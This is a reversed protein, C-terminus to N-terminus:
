PLHDPHVAVLDHDPPHTLYLRWLRASAAGEFIDPFPAPMPYAVQWGGDDTPSVVVKESLALKLEFDATKNDLIDLAGALGTPGERQLLDPQHESLWALIPVVLNHLDAGFDEVVVALDYRYEFSLSAGPVTAVRFEEVLLHLREPQDSLGSVSRLLWERLSDRKRM